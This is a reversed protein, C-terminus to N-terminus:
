IIGSFMIFFFLTSDPAADAAFGVLFDKVLNIGVPTGQRTTTNAMNKYIPEMIPTGLM